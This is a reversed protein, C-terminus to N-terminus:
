YFIEATRNKFPTVEIEAYPMKAYHKSAILKIVQNDDQFLLGNSADLAAKIYNDIDPRTVPVIEGSIAQEKKKKSWSKPISRYVGVRVVVPGEITKGGQLKIHKKVLAEYDRTKKPTYTHGNRTHRPRGKAVPEGPITIIM